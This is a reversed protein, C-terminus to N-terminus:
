KENCVEVKGIINLTLRSGRISPQFARWELRLFLCVHLQGQSIRTKCSHMKKQPPPPPPPPPLPLLLRDATYNRGLMPLRYKQATLFLQLIAMALLIKMSLITVIKFLVFYLAELGFFLSKCQWYFVTLM